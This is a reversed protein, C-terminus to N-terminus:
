QLRALASRAERMNPYYKLAAKYEAVAKMLGGAAYGGPQGHMEKLTFPDVISVYPVHGTKNYQGGPSGNMANLQDLTCGAFEKMYKIAAGADDKADYVDTRKDKPDVGSPIGGLALIEVTNDEAFEIYKDNQLM